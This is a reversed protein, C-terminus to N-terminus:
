RAWCFSPSRQFTSGTISSTFASALAAPSHFKKMGGWEPCRWTSSLKANSPVCSVLRSYASHASSIPRSPQADSHKLQEAGSVPLM